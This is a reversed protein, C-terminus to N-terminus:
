PGPSWFRSKTYGLTVVYFVKEVCKLIIFNNAFGRNEELNVVVNSSLYKKKGNRKHEIEVQSLYKCFVSSLYLFHSFCM